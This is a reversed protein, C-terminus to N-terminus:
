RAGPPDELGQVPYREALRHLYRHVVHQAAQAELYAAIRPAVEAFELPAGREAADVCVVHHGWRSEVTLGALGQQLLFVQREFEPETDGRVVWGLEGGAARSPCASHRRALEAFREPARQLVAILEEGLDRARGRAAVDAPAAALLIHRLLVRDPRRLRERNNGFYRRCAAEDPQPAPAEQELLVRVCAEERTEGDIPSASEALGLREAELRLLERVVLAQVAEARARRPGDARHYQMERAIDAESITTDLVRVPSPVPLAQNM